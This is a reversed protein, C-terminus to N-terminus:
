EAKVFGFVSDFYQNDKELHDVSAAVKSMGFDILRVTELEDIVFNRLEIDRHAVGLAHVADLAARAKQKIEMTIKGKYSDLSTGHCSVALILDNFVHRGGYFYFPVHLGWLPRLAEYVRMENEFSATAAAIYEESDEKPTMVKVIFDLGCATSHQAFSYQGESYTQLVDYLGGRYPFEKTKFPLRNQLMKLLHSLDDTEKTDTEAATLDPDASDSSSDQTSVAETDGRLSQRLNNVKRNVIKSVSRAMQKLKDVKTTQKNLRDCYRNYMNIWEEYKALNQSGKGPTTNAIKYLIEKSLETRSGNRLANIIFAAYAFKVSGLGQDTGYYCKSVMLHNDATLKLFWTRDTTSLVGYRVFSRIMYVYIQIIPTLYRNDSSSKQSFQRNFQEWYKVLDDIVVEEEDDDDNDLEIVVKDRPLGVPFVNPAKQEHVIFIRLNSNRSHYGGIGCTDLGAEDNPDVYRMLVGDPKFGPHSNEKVFAVCQRQLDPVAYVVKEIFPTMFKEKLADLLLDEDPNLGQRNYYTEFADPYVDINLYPEQGETIKEFQMETEFDEWAVLASPSINLKQQQNKSGDRTQTFRTTPSSLGSQDRRDQSARSQTRPRSIRPIWQEVLPQELLPNLCIAYYALYSVRPTIRAEPPKLRNDGGGRNNNWSRKM